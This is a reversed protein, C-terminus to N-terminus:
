GGKKMAGFNLAMGENNAFQCTTGHTATRLDQLQEASQWRHLDDLILFDHREDLLMAKHTSTNAPDIYMQQRGRCHFTYQEPAGIPM